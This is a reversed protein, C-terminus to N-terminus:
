GYIQAFLDKLYPFVRLAFGRLRPYLLSDQLTKDEVLAFSGNLSDFVLVVLGIILAAKFLAFALGLLRDAWGLAALDLAKSILNGLLILALIAVAAVAAFGVIHMLKEDLTFFGSLWAGAQDAYHWGAWVGLFIAVLGVLQQVFGKSLGQVLAPIFCVLLIIDLTGM